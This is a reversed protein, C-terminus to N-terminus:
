QLLSSCAFRRGGGGQQVCVCVCVRKVGCVYFQERRRKAMCGRDTEM